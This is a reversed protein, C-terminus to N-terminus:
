EGAPDILGAAIWSEPYALGRRDREAAIREAEGGPSVRRPRYGTGLAEQDLRAKLGPRHWYESRYLKMFAYDTLGSLNDELWEAM